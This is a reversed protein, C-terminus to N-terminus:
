SQFELTTPDRRLKRPGQVLSSSSSKRPGQLLSSSSSSSSSSARPSLLPLSQREKKQNQKRVSRHEGSCSRKVSPTRVHFGRTNSLWHPQTGTHSLAVTASHWHPQIGTHRPAAASQLRSSHVDNTCLRQPRLPLTFISIM